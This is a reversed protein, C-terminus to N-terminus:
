NIKKNSYVKLIIMLILGLFSFFIGLMMEQKLITEIINYLVDFFKISNNLFFDEIFSFLIFSSIVIVVGSFILSSFILEFGKLLNKNLLLLLVGLIIITLSLVFIILKYVNFVRKVENLDDQNLFEEELFLEILNIEIYDEKIFEKIGTENFAMELIDETQILDCDIVESESECLGLKNFENILVNEIIELKIRLVIDNSENRIFSLSQSILQKTINDYLEEPVLQILDNLHNTENINSSIIEYFGGQKDIAEFYIDQYFINNFSIIYSFLILNFSLLILLGIIFIKKILSILWM